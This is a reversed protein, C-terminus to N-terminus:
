RPPTWNYTNITQVNEPLQLKDYITNWINLAKDPNGDFLVLAMTQNPNPSSSERRFYMVLKQRMTENKEYPELLEFSDVSDVNVLLKHEPFNFFM